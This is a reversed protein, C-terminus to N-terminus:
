CFVEFGLLKHELGNRNVTTSVYEVDPCINCINFGTHLLFLDTDVLISLLLPPFFYKNVWTKSLSVIEISQMFHM